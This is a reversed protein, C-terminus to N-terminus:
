ITDVNYRISSAPLDIRPLKQLNHLVFYLFVNRLDKRYYYIDLWWIRSFSSIVYLYVM